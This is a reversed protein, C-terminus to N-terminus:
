AEGSSQAGGHVPLFSFELCLLQTEWLSNQPWGGDSNGKLTRFTMLLCLQTKCRHFCLRKRHPRNRDKPSLVLDWSWCCMSIQSFKLNKPWVWSLSFCCNCKLLIGMEHVNLSGNMSGGKWIWFQNGVKPCHSLLNKSWSGQIETKM